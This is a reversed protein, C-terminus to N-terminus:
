PNYIDRVCSSFAVMLVYCWSAHFVEIDGIGFVLRNPKINTRPMTSYCATTPV